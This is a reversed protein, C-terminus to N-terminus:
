FLHNIGVSIGTQSTQGSPQIFAAGVAGAFVGTSTGFGTNGDFKARDVNVYLNTRKSLNYTGGVIFLKRKSDAAGLDLKTQYYGATLAMAPTFNYSGGIWAHKSELKPFGAAIDQEENIYGAAVRAPGMVFAGGLTWQDNDQFNAAATSAALNPKRKTYAGGVSFPGAAYTAGVATAANGSTNGVTEGLAYEARVTVPGFSGTYQIDNAFRTNGISSSVTTGQNGAAAGALPIVGIFKYGFPDYGGITKFAVSYQNGLDVGGWAGGIGVTAARDFLQNTATGPAAAGFVAPNGGIGNAAGGQAGTTSDFGLELNFRANMGGGLDEVGKFGLRNSNFVGSGLEIRSDGAANRNNTYRVGADISGYVTVSSQAQAAGAFAGMVALALLSKKM